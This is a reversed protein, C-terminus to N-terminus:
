KSDYEIFTIEGTTQSMYGRIVGSSYLDYKIATAIAEKNFQAHEKEWGKPNLEKQVSIAGLAIKGGSGAVFFDKVPTVGFGADLVFLQGYTALIFEADSIAATGKDLDISKNKELTASIKPIVNKIIWVTMSQQGQSVIQKPITPWKMVYQVVDSPRSWGAGAIIWDGNKVVKINDSPMSLYSDEDSIQSESLIVASHTSATGLITTM